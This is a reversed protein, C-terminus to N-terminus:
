VHARGIQDHRCRLRHARDFLIQVLEGLRRLIKKRHPCLRDLSDDLTVGLALARETERDTPMRQPRRIDRAADFKLLRRDDHHCVGAIARCRNQLVVGFQRLDHHASEYIALRHDRPFPRLPLRPFRLCEILGANPDGCGSTRSARCNSRSFYQKM